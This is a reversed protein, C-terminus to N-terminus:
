ERWIYDRESSGWKKRRRREREREREKEVLDIRYQLRHLSPKLAHLQLIEVTLLWQWGVTSSSVVPQFFM